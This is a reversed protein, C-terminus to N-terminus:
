EASNEVGLAGHSISFLLMIRKLRLDIFCGKGQFGQATGTYHRLFPPM